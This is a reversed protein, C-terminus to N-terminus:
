RLTSEKVLVRQSNLTAGTVGFFPSGFLRHNPPGCLFFINPDRGQHPLKPVSDCNLKQGCHSRSQPWDCAAGCAFAASAAPYVLQCGDRGNLEERGPASTMRADGEFFVSACAAWSCARQRVFFLEWMSCTTTVGNKIFCSHPLVHSASAHPTM